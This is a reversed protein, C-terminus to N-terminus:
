IKGAKALQIMKAVTEADYTADGGAGAVPVPQGAPAPVVKTDPAKSGGAPPMGVAPPQAPTPAPANQPPIIDDAVVGEPTQAPVPAPVAQGPPAAPVAAAGAVGEPPIEGEPPMAGELPAEGGASMTRTAAETVSGAIHGATRAIIEQAGPDGTLAAQMTEAGIFAQAARAGMEEPTGAGAPAPVAGPPIAEPPVPPVKESPAAEKKKPKEGNKDEEDDNVPPAENFGASEDEAVKLLLDRFKSSAGAFKTIEEGTLPKM